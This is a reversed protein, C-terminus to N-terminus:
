SHRYPRQTEAQLDWTGRREGLTVRAVLTPLLGNVGLRHTPVLATAPHPALEAPRAQPVAIPLVHSRRQQVRYSRPGHLDCVTRACPLLSVILPGTAM